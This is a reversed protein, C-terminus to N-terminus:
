MQYDLWLILLALTPKDRDAKDIDPRALDPEAARQRLEALEAAGFGRFELRSGAVVTVNPWRPRIPGTNASVGRLGEGVVGHGGPQHGHAATIRGWAVSPSIPYTWPQAHVRAAALRRGM